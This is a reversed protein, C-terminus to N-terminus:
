VRARCSARGIKDGVEIAGGLSDVVSKVISLGMGIGQRGAKKQSLQYYPTFINEKQAEEITEGTNAITLKIKGGRTKLGAEISGHDRNYKLANELLNNLIREVASPDAKLYVEKEVSVALTIGRKASLSQFLAAQKELYDSLDVVQSHDYVQKGRTFKLVDFFNVM